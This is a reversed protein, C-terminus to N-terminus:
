ASKCTTIFIEPRTREHFADKSKRRGGFFAGKRRRRGGGEVFLEPVPFSPIKM